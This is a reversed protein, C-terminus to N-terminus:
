TEIEEIKAWKTPISGSVGHITCPQETKSLENEM